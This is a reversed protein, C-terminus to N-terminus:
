LLATIRDSLDSCWLQVEDSMGGISTAADLGGAFVEPAGSFSISEYGQKDVTALDTMKRPGLLVTRTALDWRLWHHDCFLLVIDSDARENLAADIKSSFPAPVGNLPSGASSIPVLPAAFMTEAAPYLRPESLPM